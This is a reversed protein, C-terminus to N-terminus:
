FQYPGECFSLAILFRLCEAFVAIWRIIQVYIRWLDEHVLETMLLNGIVKIGKHLINVM